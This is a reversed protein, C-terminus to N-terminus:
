WSEEDTTKKGARLKSMPVALFIQNLMTAWVEQCWPYRKLIEYWDMLNIYLCKLRSSHTSSAWQCQQQYSFVWLSTHLEFYWVSNVFDFGKWESVPVLLARWQSKRSLPGKRYTLSFALQPWSSTQRATKVAKQLTELWLPSDSQGWWLGIGDQEEEQGRRQQGKSREEELYSKVKNREGRKSTKITRKRKEESKRRPSTM